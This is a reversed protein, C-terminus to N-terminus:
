LINIQLANLVNKNPIVSSVTNISLAAFIAIARFQMNQQTVIPVIHELVVNLAIQLISVVHNV